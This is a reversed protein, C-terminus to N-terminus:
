FRLFVDPSMVNDMPFVSPLGVLSLCGTLDQPAEVGVIITHGINSSKQSVPYTIM